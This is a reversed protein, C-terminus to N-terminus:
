NNKERKRVMGVVESGATVLVSLSLVGVAIWLWTENGDRASIEIEDRLIPQMFEFPAVAFNVLDRNLGAYNRTDPMMRQFETLRAQTDESNGAVIDHFIQVLDRLNAMESAEAQMASSRILSLFLVYQDRVGYLMNVNVGFQQALDTRVFDLYDGYADLWLDIQRRIDDSLFEDVDFSMLQEHMDALSAWFDDPAPPEGLYPREPRDGSFDDISSQTNPPTLHEFSPPLETSPHQPVGSDPVPLSPLQSPLDMGTFTPPIQIIPSTITSLEDFTDVDFEPVSAIVDLIDDWLDDSDFPEPFEIEAFDELWEDLAQAFAITTPFDEPIPQEGLAELDAQAQQWAEIHEALVAIQAQTDAFDAQWEDLNDLFNNASTVFENAAEVAENYDDFLSIIVSLADELSQRTNDLGDRWNELATNAVNLEGAISYRTTDIFDVFDAVVDLYEIWVTYRGNAASLWLLLENEQSVLTSQYEALENIWNVLIGHWENMAERHAHVEDSYATVNSSYNRTLDIWGDLATMWEARQEPFNDTLAILGERM